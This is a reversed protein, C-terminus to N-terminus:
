QTSQNLSLNKRGPYKQDSRQTRGQGRARGRGRRYGQERSTPKRTIRQNNSPKNTSTSTRFNNRVHSSFPKSSQYQSPRNYYGLKNPLRAKQLPGSTCPQALTSANAIAKEDFLDEQFISGELLALRVQIPDLGQVVYNRLKKRIQAAKKLSPCMLSLSTTAVGKNIFSSINDIEKFIADSQSIGKWTSLKKLSSLLVSATHAGLYTRIHQLLERRADYDQKLLDRPPRLTLGALHKPLEHCNETLKPASAFALLPVTSSILPLSNIFGEKLKGSEVDQALSNLEDPISGVNIKDHGLKWSTMTMTTKNFPARIEQCLPTRRNPIESGYAALKDIFSNVSNCIRLIRIKNRGHQQFSDVMRDDGSNTIETGQLVIRTNHIEADDPLVHVDGIQSPPTDDALTNPADEMEENYDPDQYINSDSESM